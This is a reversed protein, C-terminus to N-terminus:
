TSPFSAQDDVVIDASTIAKVCFGTTVSMLVSGSTALDTRNYNVTSTGNSSSGCPYVALSGNGSPSVVTVTLLHGGHIAVQLTQGAGLRRHTIQTDVLRQNTQVVGGGPRVTGFLDVVADAPQNAILCIDGSNDVQAVALAERAVRPGANVTSTGVFATDCRTVALWGGTSGQIETVAVVAVSGPALGTHVRRMPSRGLSGPVVAGQGTRTDAIRYPQNIRAVDTVPLWGTVDLIINVTASVLVCVKGNSDPAYLGSGAVATSTAFDITSTGNYGTTCPRIDAWGPSAGDVATVTMAVAAVGTRPIGAVGVVTVARTGGSGIRGGSIRTDLLRAPTMPRLVAPSVNATAAPTVTAAVDNQATTLLGYCGRTGPNTLTLVYDGATLRTAMPVSVTFPSWSVGSTTPIRSPVFPVAISGFVVGSEAKVSLRAAANPAESAFVNLKIADVDGASTVHLTATQTKKPLAGCRVGVPQAVASAGPGLVVDDPLAWTPHCSMLPVGTPDFTMEEFWQSAPGQNGTTGAHPIAPVGVTMPSEWWRDGQYIWRTGGTSTPVAVLSTSQSSCANAIFARTPPFPGDFSTATSYVLGAGTTCFGCLTSGLIIYAAGNPGRTLMPAEGTLGQTVQPPFVVAARAAAAAGGVLTPPAKPDINTRSTDLRQVYIGRGASLSAIYANGTVPDDYLSFDEGEGGAPAGLQAQGAWSYPGTLAGASQFVQYDLYTGHHYPSNVWIAWGSGSRVAKARWCAPACALTPLKAMASGDVLYGESQWTVLDPSSYARVGCTTSVVGPTPRSPWEQGCSYAMGILWYRGGDVILQGDHADLPNGDSDLRLVPRGDSLANVITVPTTAAVARGLVPLAFTLAATMVLAVILGMRGLTRGRISRDAGWAQMEELEVPAQDQASTPSRGQDRVEGTAAYEILSLEPAEVPENWDPLKHGTTM